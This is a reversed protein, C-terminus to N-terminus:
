QSGPSSNLPLASEKNGALLPSSLGRLFQETHHSLSGFLVSALSFAVLVRFCVLIYVLSRAM